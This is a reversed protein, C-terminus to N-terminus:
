WCVASVHHEVTKASRFLKKAIEPNALGQAMLELVELERNTLGAPNDRTSARPGRPLDRVGQEHLKRRALEAAPKAGLEEFIKLAARQAPEDGDMLAMAREYPCGMRQWEAAAGVWDGAIHLAFPKAIREPAKELGGGRWLWFAM